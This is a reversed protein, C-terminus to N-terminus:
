DNKIAKMKKERKAKKYKLPKSSMNGDRAQIIRKIELDESM